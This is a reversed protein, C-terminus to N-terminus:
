RASSNWSKAVKFHITWSKHYLNFDFGSSLMQGYTATVNISNKAQYNDFFGEWPADCEKDIRM